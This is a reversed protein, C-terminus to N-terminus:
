PFVGVVESVGCLKSRSPDSEIRAPSRRLQEATGVLHDFLPGQDPQRLSWSQEESEPRFNSIIVAADLPLRRAEVVQAPTM